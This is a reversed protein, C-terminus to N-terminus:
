PEHLKLIDQVLEIYARGPDVSGDKASVLANADADLVANLRGLTKLIVDTRSQARM